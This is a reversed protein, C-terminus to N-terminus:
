AQDPHKSGKAGVDNALFGKAIAGSARAVCDAHRFGVAEAEGHMFVDTELGPVALRLAQDARACDARRILGGKAQARAVALSRTGIEVALGIELLHRSEEDVLGGNVPDVGEAVM